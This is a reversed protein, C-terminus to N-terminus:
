PRYRPLSPAESAYNSDNLSPPGGGTSGSDSASPASAQPEDSGDGEHGEVEALPPASPALEVCFDEDELMPPASPVIPPIDGEGVGYGQAEEFPPASPGLEPEFGAIEMEEFAYPYDYFNPSALSAKSPPPPFPSSASASPQPYDDANNEQTAAIVEELEEDRWEPASVQHVGAPGAM